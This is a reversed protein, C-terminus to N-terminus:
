MSRFGGDDIDTGKKTFVIDSEKVGAHGPATQLADAESVEGATETKAPAATETTKPAAETTNNETNAPEAATEESVTGASGTQDMQKSGACSALLLAALAASIIRNTKM